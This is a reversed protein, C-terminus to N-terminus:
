VHNFLFSIMHRNWLKTIAVWKITSGHVGFAGSLKRICSPGLPRVVYGSSTNSAFLYHKFWFWIFIDLVIWILSSRILIVAYSWPVMLTHFSSKLKVNELIKILSCHSFTILLWGWQGGSRSSSSSSFAKSLEPFHKSSNWTWGYVKIFMLIPVFVQKLDLRGAIAIKGDLGDALKLVGSELGRSGQCIHYLLCAEQRKMSPKSITRSSPAMATKSALCLKRSRLLLSGRAAQGRLDGKEIRVSSIPEPIFQFYKLTEYQLKWHIMKCLLFINFLLSWSQSWNETGSQFNEFPSFYYTM